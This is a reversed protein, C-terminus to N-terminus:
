KALSKLYVYVGRYFRNIFSGTIVTEEVKGQRKKKQSLSTFLAAFSQIIFYSYCFSILSPFISLM